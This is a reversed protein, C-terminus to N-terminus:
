DVRGHNKALANKLYGRLTIRKEQDTASDYADSLMRRARATKINSLVYGVEQYVLKENSQAQEELINMILQEDRVSTLALIGMGRVAPHSDKLADQIAKVGVSGTYLALAWVAQGRLSEDPDKFARYLLPLADMGGREVLGSIALMRVEYPEKPNLAKSYIDLAEPLKRRGISVLANLRDDPRGDLQARRLMEENKIGKLPEPDGVGTGSWVGGEARGWPFDEHMMKFGTFREDTETQGTQGKPKFALEKNWKAPVTNGQLTNAQEVAGPAAVAPPANAVTGPQLLAKHASVTDGDAEAACGAVWMAVAFMMIRELRM